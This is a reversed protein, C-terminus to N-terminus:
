IHYWPLVTIAGYVCWPLVVTIGHYCWLLVVRIGRYFWQLVMTVGHGMVVTGNLLIAVGLCTVVTVHYCWTVM